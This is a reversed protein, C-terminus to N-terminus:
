DHLRRLHRRYLRAGLPGALLRVPAPLAALMLRREDDDCVDLLAGVLLAADGPRAKKTGEALRAWEAATIHELVLPLIEREELDLHEFLSSCLAELAQALQEGTVADPGTRWQFALSRVYEVLHHVTDHQQQMTAVLAASPRARELLRPWLEADESTHHLELGLLFLRLHEAVAAARRVDGTTTRRVHGPLEPLRTRLVRHVVYMEEIPPRGTTTTTM